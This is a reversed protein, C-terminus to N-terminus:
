ASDFDFYVIESLSLSEAPAEVRATTIAEASSGGASTKLVGATSLEMDNQSCGALSIGLVAVAVAFKVLKLLAM